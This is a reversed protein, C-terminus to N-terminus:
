RPQPQQRQLAAQSVIQQVSRQQEANVANIAESKQQPTLSADQLIKQRKTESLKAMQYIPMIAKSPAGYQQAMMQAQRFLPDKTLLYAQYREPGLSERIAAERDRQYRERQKESMGEPGGFELQMPHDLPDIARFVKRFEEPTPEIGRLEDRLQHANHSYRLVFEEVELPNLIKRLESRTNERLKAMEVNNLAQGQNAREWFYSQHREISQACIEQVQNHLPAPLKGLVPGTLQVSNWLLAEGREKQALEYGLLKEVLASREEELAQGRQQMVNAMLFESQSKWWQQDNEVSIKLKKQQFLEAIDGLVITRVKEEPCGVARLSGIYAVYEPSEVEKWTFKKQTFVPQPLVNTQVALPNSGNTVAAVAVPKANNTQPVKARNTTTLARIQNTKAPIGFSTAVVKPQNNSSIFLYAVFAGGLAVNLGLFLYLLNRDRM